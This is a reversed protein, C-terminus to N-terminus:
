GQEPRFMPSVHPPPRPRQPKRAWLRATHRDDSRWGEDFDVVELGSVLTPLEGLELVLRERNPRGHKERHWVTFTELLVSGGPRLLNGITAFLERDLFFFSTVLDFVGAIRHDKEVDQLLWHIRREPAYRQRLAEARQLADPLWDIGVVEWGLSALFVADRGGGCAIDLARGTEGAAAFTETLPNPRWLRGRDADQAFEVLEVLRPERGLRVLIEIASSAGEAQAVGVSEGPKPLEQIRTEIETAPIWVAGRFPPEPRPRPDLLDRLPIM